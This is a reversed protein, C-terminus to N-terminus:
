APAMMDSDIAFIKRVSVKIDPLGPTASKRDAQPMAITM